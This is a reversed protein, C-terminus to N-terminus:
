IIEQQPRAAAPREIPRDDRLADIQTAVEYGKDTVIRELVRLRDDLERKNAADQATKEALRRDQLEIRRHVWTGVIPMIVFFALLSFFIVYGNM